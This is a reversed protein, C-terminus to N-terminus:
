MRIGVTWFMRQVGSVVVHSVCDLRLFRLPFAEYDCLNELRHSVNMRM